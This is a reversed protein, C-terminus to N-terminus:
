ASASGELHVTERSGRGRYARSCCDCERLGADLLLVDDALAGDCPVQRLDVSMGLEGAFATEALAVGLGGDSCDHCSRVLGKRMAANLGRYLALARQSDVRPVRNGVCGQMAFYESGGTEDRTEGLVYVLDGAAKADMTCALRVDDIAGLLSFLVTPPISIKHDAIMYDNKMSDKGSICPISYATTYDYLAQNARM